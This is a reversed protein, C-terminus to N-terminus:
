KQLPLKIFPLDFNIKRKEKLFFFYRTGSSLVVSQHTKITKMLSESLSARGQEHGCLVCSVAHRRM